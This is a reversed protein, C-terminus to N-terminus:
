VSEITLPKPRRGDVDAVGFEEAVAAAVLVKGTREILAPDRALAAIVRGIFEPSESNSLDFGASGAAQMVLETRVLGPYLSVVAVGHPKLEHAMDATLKDVAAKSVGYIANGIYKQAAWFSINVILGRRAATMMRAAHASAVFAARVGADMMSTWRHLPQQWFPLMWTFKGDEVMREYGGWASNVLVDLGGADSAVREFAAATDQDRLHDCRIRVVAEPLDARDISRGTAFVKFGAGALGIAAGRGVGRSAGTVLATPM